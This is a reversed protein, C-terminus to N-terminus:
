YDISKVVTKGLVTIGIFIVQQSFDNGCFYILVCFVPIRSPVLILCFNGISLM